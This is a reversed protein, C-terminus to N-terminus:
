KELIDILVFIEHFYSYNIQRIIKEALTFTENKWMKLTSNKRVTQISFNRSFLAFQSNIERFFLGNGHNKITDLARM